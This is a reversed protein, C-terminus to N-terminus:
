SWCPSRHRSRSGYMYPLGTLFLGGIAIVVTGGAIIV